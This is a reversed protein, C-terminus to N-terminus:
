KGQGAPQSLNGPKIRKKEEGKRNANEKKPPTTPPGASAVGQSKRDNSNMPQDQKM